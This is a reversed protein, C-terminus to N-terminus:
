PVYYYDQLLGIYAWTPTFTEAQWHDSHAEALTMEGIIVGFRADFIEQQIEEYIGARRAEDPEGVAESLLDAVSDSFYRHCNSYSDVGTPGFVQMLYPYPDPYAAGIYINISDPITEPDGCMETMESWTKPVMNVTINLESAAELFILGSDEEPTYGGIYVYGIEFGGDPWPSQALYDRALDLDTRQADEFDVAEALAPPIVSDIAQVDYMAEHLDAYNVAHALAKRVNVDGIPGESATNMYIFDLTLTPRLLTTFGEKDELQVMDEENPNICWDVEGAELALRAPASERYVVYRFVDPNTERPWGNWYDRVAEFEYMSGPEWRSITYPGSGAEHDLLWGSGWDEGEEHQQVVAPNVVYMYGLTGPFPAFPETLTFRITYDDIVSVTDDDTIDAWMWSYGSALAMMREFSYAVADATVPSGDHFVADDVLTFTWQTLEENVEYSEVLWPEVEVPNGHLRFLPDYVARLAVGGPWDTSVAPDINAIEFPISATFVIPEEEVVPTATPPAPTATAAPPPVTRQVTPTAAPACGTAAVLAVALLVVLLSLKHHM